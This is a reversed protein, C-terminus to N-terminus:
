LPRSLPAEGRRERPLKLCRGRNVRGLGVCTLRVDAVPHGAGGLLVRGDEIRATTADEYIGLVRDHPLHVSWCSRSLAM